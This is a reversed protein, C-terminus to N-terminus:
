CSTIISFSVRTVQVSYLSSSSKPAYSDVRNIVRAYSLLSDSLRVDSLRNHRVAMHQKNSLYVDRYDMM